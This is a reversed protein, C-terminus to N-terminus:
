IGELIKLLRQHRYSILKLMFIARAETLKVGVEIRVLQDLIKEFVVSNVKRLCELMIEHTDPYSNILKLLLDSHNAKKPDTLKWRLQHTGRAAYKELRKDDNCIIFDAEPLEYGMSTGNDFAPSLRVGTIIGPSNKNKHSHTIVVGWNDQHRDTNGILADFM